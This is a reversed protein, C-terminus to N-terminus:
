NEPLALEVVNEVVSEENEARIVASSPIPSTLYAWSPLSRSSANATTPLDNTLSLASSAPSAPFLFFLLFFLFRV